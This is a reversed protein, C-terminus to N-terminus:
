INRFNYTIFQQDNIQKTIQTKKKIVSTHCRSSEVRGPFLKDFYM